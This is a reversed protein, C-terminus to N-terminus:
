GVGLKIKKVRVDPGGFWVPVGQSPEGKGCFGTYFRLEKGVADISSYFAKTTLELVPNRVFKTLEGNEILYAELGVYRQSWREDDINWEMYSKIYVGLKIGELLEEFSHDGAKLYTNSMRIIPESAYNMARSSGNSEVNFVYATWRNHLFENIVGERYLYKPRAPVGEDDYLFFGFSGPITPDDVVTAYENGIRYGLMSPKIFSKGAQAAERGLIRDAESPHGCSEHAIIGVIESGVVVPIEEKPPEAGTLLIKEYTKVDEVLKEELRWREFWEFGGSAGHEEFRQITGKQPHSVVINYTVLIRPIRSRVYAGDSNVVIKEEISETYTLTLISVHAERISSSTLRWLESHTGLKEELSVDQFRKKEEVSYSARGLKSSAFVIPKKMFRALIKARAYATEVAKAISEKTLINTSSFGLAGDVLVRIGVGNSIDKASGVIIGNRSVVEFEEIRHVRAESYQAGLKTAYDIAFLALEESMGEVESVV